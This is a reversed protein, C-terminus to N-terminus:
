AKKSLGGHRRGRLFKLYPEFDFYERKVTNEFELRESIDRTYIVAGKTVVNYQLSFSAYKGRLDFISIEQTISNKKLLSAFIDEVKSILELKEMDDVGYSILIAIDIDSDKRLKGEVISGYFYVAEIDDPISAPELQARVMDVINKSKM